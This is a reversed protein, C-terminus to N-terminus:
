ATDVEEGVIYTDNRFEENENTIMNEYDYQKTPM